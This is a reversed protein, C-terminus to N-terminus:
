KSDDSSIHVNNTKENGRKRKFIIFYGIDLVWTIGNRLIAVILTIFFLREFDKILDIANGAQNNDSLWTLLEHLM